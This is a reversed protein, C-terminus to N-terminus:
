KYYPTAAYRTHIIRALDKADAKGQTRNRRCTGKPPAERKRRRQAVATLFRWAKTRAPGELRPLLNQRTWNSERSLEPFGVRM